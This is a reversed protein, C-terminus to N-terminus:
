LAKWGSARVRAYGARREEERLARLTSPGVVGAGDDGHTRVIGKAIQYQIVGEKTLPGFHGNIDEKPFLGRESLLRQLLTVQEGSMGEEIFQALIRGRKRLEEHVRAVALFHEAREEVLRRNWEERLMRRTIPGIRGAGPDDKTGVLGHVQQFRLIATKLGNSYTGDTRGTYTGLFRLLRKAKVLESAAATDDIFTKLPERANKRSAAALVHAASRESLQDHPANVRFDRLFAAFSRRTEPGFFGTPPRDFYGLDRLYEQLVRVSLGRDGVKPRMALLNDREVFFTELEKIPAPLTDLAFLIAPHETGVPYVTGQVRQIGFALARALGEEGHGAWIDLRHAGAPLETIAGGRDHVTFTGAGRLTVVTGFPYRGPAAIMGPYVPTGDAGVKGEGNLVRDAQLGGTVYCCQHPLPSYYATIIFEQEFPASPFEPSTLGHLPAVLTVFCLVVYLRRPVVFPQRRYLPRRVIHM